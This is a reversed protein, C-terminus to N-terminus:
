LGAATNKRTSCAVVLTREDEVIRSDTKYIKMNAGHM